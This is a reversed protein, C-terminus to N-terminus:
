KALGPLQVNESHPLTHNALQREVTASSAARLDLGESISEAHSIFAKVNQPTDSNKEYNNTVAAAFPGQESIDSPNTHVQEEDEASKENGTQEKALVFRM